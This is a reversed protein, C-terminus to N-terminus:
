KKFLHINNMESRIAGGEWSRRLGVGKRKMEGAGEMEERDWRMRRGGVGGEGGGRMRGGGVGGVEDKRRWDM